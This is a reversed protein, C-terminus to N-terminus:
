WPVGLAGALFRNLPNLRGCAKEITTAFEPSAVSSDTLSLTAYFDKRKLDEAYRHAPDIGTPVRAYSDGGLRLGGRTLPGWRDPTALIAGRIKRLAAPEPHWVGAALMSEKPALHLFFGPLHADKGAAEHSFHIGVHTKYPRKDKSFRTDRYIRSLSGGFPRADAALHRSLKGLRPGMGRIFRLAPEQVAGEYRAKNKLFWERDNHLELEKLFGLLGPGLAGPTTGDKPAM